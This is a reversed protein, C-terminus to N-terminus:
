TMIGKWPRLKRNLKLRNKKSGEAAKGLLVIDKYWLLRVCVDSLAIYMTFLPVEQKVSINIVTPIFVSSSFSWELRIRATAQFQLESPLVHIVTILGTDSTMVYKLYVM